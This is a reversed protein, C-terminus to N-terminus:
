WFATFDRSASLQSSLCNARTVPTRAPFTKSQPALATDSYTIRESSSPQHTTRKLSMVPSPLLGHLYLSHSGDGKGYIRSIDIVLPFLDNTNNKPSRACIWMRGALYIHTFLDFVICCKYPLLTRCSTQDMFRHMWQITDHNITDSSGSLM